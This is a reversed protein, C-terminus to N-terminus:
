NLVFVGDGGREFDVWVFPLDPYQEILAEQSNGVEVVLIGNPKLYKKYEALLRKAFDLGDKGSALGIQPEHETEKSILAMDQADVYPPNTVIIDYQGFEVGHELSEGMPKFLDAEILRVRSQLDHNKVNIAAVDLADASLDTCDVNANEFFKACAIGICGSGTCLDLISTVNDADIFPEFQNEILEAIPSRPVLVRADVYFKMTAFYAEKLLYALPIRENIRKNALEKIKDCQSTTLEHQLVEEGSDLPLGAVTLVLFVAEDHVDYIGHGCFIDANEFQNITKNLITQLIM